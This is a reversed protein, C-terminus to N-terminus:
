PAAFLGTLFTVADVASAQVISSHTAGAFERYDVVTGNGTMQTNLMQTFNPFVTTDDLGQLILVPSALAITGPQTALLYADVAPANITTQPVISDTTGTALVAAQVAPTIGAFFPGTCQTLASAAVAAGDPGFAADYDFTPDTGELGALILASFGTWGVAAEVRDAPPLSTNTIISQLFQGSAKLGSAPAIAVTGLYSLSGAEGAYQAAALAAHGGQSHGIAAVRRSLAPYAKAAAEAAFVMSRGASALNLYPHLGATGLGEYDPAVVAMGAGVLGNLYPLYQAPRGIQIARLRGRHGDHRAGSPWRGRRRGAAGAPVLVIANEERLKGDVGPMWYTVKRGHGGRVGAAHGCKTGSFDGAVPAMITARAVLASLVLAAAGLRWARLAGAHGAPTPKLPKM